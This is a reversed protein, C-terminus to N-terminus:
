EQELFARVGSTLRAAECGLAMHGCNGNLDLTPFGGLKAFEIATRPNVMHDQTAVVIYMRAQVKAVAGPLNHNQSMMARLQAARDLPDLTVTDLSKRLAAWDAGAASDHEPTRLAFQHMANVAPMVAKPDVKNAVAAEIASLQAQWLLLDPTSLRPSGIIPIVKAAFAPYAVAWDFSQM